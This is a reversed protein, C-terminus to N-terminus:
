YDEAVGIFKGNNARIIDDRSHKATLPSVSRGDPGMSYLDFDSNIPVLNKDKRFKGKGKVNDFNLFQYPNGWPDLKSFGLENLDDPYRNNILRYREIDMEIERIDTMAASNESNKHIFQYGPIAILMTISLISLAVLLELLSVGNKFHLPILQNTATAM